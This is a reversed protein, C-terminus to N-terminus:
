RGGNKARRDADASLPDLVTERSLQAGTRPGTRRPESLSLATITQDFERSRKISSKACFQEELMRRQAHNIRGESLLLAIRSRRGTLLENKFSLSMGEEPMDEPM